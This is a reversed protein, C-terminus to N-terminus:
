LQAPVKSFAITVLWVLFEIRHSKPPMQSSRVRWTVKVTTPESTTAHPVTRNVNM